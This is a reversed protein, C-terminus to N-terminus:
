MQPWTGMPFSMPVKEKFSEYHAKTQLVVKILRENIENRWDRTSYTGWNDPLKSMTINEYQHMNDRHVSCCPCPQNASWTKISMLTTFRFM